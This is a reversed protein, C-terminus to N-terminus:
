GGELGGGNARLSRAADTHINLVNRKKLDVAYNWVCNFWAKMNFKSATENM